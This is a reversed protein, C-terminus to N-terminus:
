EEVEKVEITKILAISEEGDNEPAFRFLLFHNLSSHIAARKLFSHFDFKNISLACSVGAAFAVILNKQFLRCCTFKNSHNFLVSIFSVSSAPEAESAAELLNM